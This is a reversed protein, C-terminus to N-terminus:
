GDELVRHDFIESVIEVAVDCDALDVDGDDVLLRRRELARLAEDDFQDIRLFRVLDEEVLGSAADDNGVSGTLVNGDRENRFAGEDADAAVLVHSNHRRVRGAVLLAAVELHRDLRGLADVPFQFRRGVPGDVTQRGAVPRGSAASELADGGAIRSEPERVALRDLREAAVDFLGPRGTVDHRVTFRFLRLLGSVVDHGFDEVPRGRRGDRVSAEGLVGSKDKGDVLATRHGRSFKAAVKLLSHGDIFATLEESHRPNAQPTPSIRM